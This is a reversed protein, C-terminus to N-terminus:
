MTKEIEREEEKERSDDTAYRRHGEGRDGSDQLCLGNPMRERRRKKKESCSPRERIRKKTKKRKDKKREKEAPSSFIQKVNKKVHIKSVPRTM